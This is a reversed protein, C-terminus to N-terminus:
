IVVGTNGDPRTGNLHQHLNDIRKGDFFLGAATMTMVHGGATWTIGNADTRSKTAGQRVEINDSAISVVSQGDLSQLTLADVDAGAVIWDKITDPFFMADSFNHRRKTNPWDQQGGRQLVLSIDRDNAKLWGFDGAKVPYRQFFGGAGFRFVPINSVTARSKKSGDTTGIMVLPKITARNSDPDYSVVVAPLMDDLNDRVWGALFADVGGALSDTNASDANPKNM